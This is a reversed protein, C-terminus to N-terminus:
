GTACPLSKRRPARWKPSPAAPPRASAPLPPFTRPAPAFAPAGPRRGEAAARPRPGRPQGARRRRAPRGDQAVVPDRPRRRDRRPAFPLRGAMQVADSHVPVGAESALRAIEGLPQLVGTENNAAMVSVLGPKPDAQSAGPWGPSISSATATSPFRRSGAAAPRPRLPARRRLRSDAARRAQALALANAETGGSTFVVDAPDAGVLAAVAARADELHRRAKRGAGHVSSPNGGDDLAALMAARAEPRLPSTANCDLYVTGAM